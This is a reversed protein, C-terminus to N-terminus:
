WSGSAGGGDFGGGGGGFGGFGGGSSGGGSDGWGGTTFWGGGSRPLNSWGDDYRYGRRSVYINKRNRALYFFVFILGFMLFLMIILGIGSGEEQQAQDNTFEGKTAKIISTTALDFGEYFNGDKFNPVIDDRIIRGCIVDPLAGQLGYGPSINIKRDTKSALLLVGNKKTEKGIGWKRGLQLAFTNADLDGLSEVTVISVENSTAKEFALLKAELKLEDENTIMDALDNVLAKHIPVDPIIKNYEQSYCHISISLMLLAFGIKKIQFTFRM